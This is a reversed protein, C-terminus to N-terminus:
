CFAIFARDLCAPVSRLGGVVIYPFRPHSPSSPPFPPLLRLITHLTFVFHQPPIRFSYRSLYISLYSVRHPEPTPDDLRTVVRLHAGEGYAMSDIRTSIEFFFLGGFFEEM